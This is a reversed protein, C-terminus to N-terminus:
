MVMHLWSPYFVGAFNCVAPQAIALRFGIHVKPSQSKPRGLKKWAKHADPFVEKFPKARAFDAMTLEPNDVDDVREPDHDAM